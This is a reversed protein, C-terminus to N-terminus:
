RSRGPSGWRDAEADPLYTDYWWCTLSMRALATDRAPRHAAGSSAWWRGRLERAPGGRGGRWGGEGTRALPWHAQGRRHHPGRHRMGRGPGARARCSDRPDASGCRTRCWRAKVRRRMHALAQLRPASAMVDQDLRAFGFQDHVCRGGAALCCDGQIGSRAAHHVDRRICWSIGRPRSM